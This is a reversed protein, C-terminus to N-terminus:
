LRRHSLAPFSARLDSARAPDITATVVAPEDGAEALVTGWADVIMSHGWTERGSAHQGGQAAAVVPVLNEVARARLLLEWHVAGTARTFAAPVALAQMGADLMRRFQEPFRLDYCVALGLGGLPTPSVVPRDGPRCHASERYNESSGPVTVDFLHIKDYRAHLSGDPAYLLCASFFRQGDALLPLSGGVLWVGSEAAMRALWSQVPGRGPPEAIEIREADNRGMFAFNEPLVALQSGRSCADRLLEEAVKLNADLDPGSCMQLAAVVVPTAPDAAM